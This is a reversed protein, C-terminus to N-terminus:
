KVKEISGLVPLDLYEAVDDENKIRKDLVEKLFIILAALIFGVFMGVAVNVLTRPEVQEGNGEAVSLISVNDVNMINEVDESFVEAVTNAITNSLESHESKVSINLVQSDSQSSINLMNQIETTTYRNDLRNSVEDLIRPSKIIESYTKILQLNSQVQQTLMTNQTEKQNVLLQTTSEYKPTILYMSILLAIIGFLLPLAVISFFNKKIIKFLDELDITQEM